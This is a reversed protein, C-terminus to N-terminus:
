GRESLSLVGEGDDEGWCHRHSRVTVRAKEGVVVGEGQHCCVGM